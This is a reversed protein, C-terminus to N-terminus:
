KKRGMLADLSADKKADIWWNFFGVGYKPTIVPRSFRDWYALRNNQMHWQPIVYHGWLLVRDLARTAAILEARDPAAIIKEILEDVAPDNVGIINRSGEVGANEASWFNRQENGPSLSQRFSAVVADFDFSHIRNQYQATDVVRLNTEIGLRKLNKIMPLMIREFSPNVLLIEMQFLKGDANTLRGSKITWGAEALLKRATRLNQRLSGKKDNVPVTFEKTFVDAPIKDRLPDLYKLEAKGPLGSSALESNSFYSKTRTYQGYFLNKNAWEFDFAFSLAHRVRRDSFLERRSNFALAQMGTPNYNRSEEKKFLGTLLAESKYGTAWVKATNEQRFDYERSKFAELEVTQDRYYDYRITDFNYQGKNVALDKGWYDKVREYTISRGADLEKIRYPGSGMPPVLTTKEFEHKSYWAKSFVPIQSTIHPLERNLDGSFSFKIRREGAKEASAISKFYHQYFPHGKSKITEFSFIVDDVTIPSGDHWRARKDLTYAVWSFDDPIEVSEALHAYSSSAEDSSSTMLSDYMLGLGSASVGKLIFPNLSDYSGIASLRVTGGKPADPNVYDFHKFGKPYKLDGHLSSGHSVKSKASSGAQAAQGALFGSGTALAVASIMLFRVIRLTM